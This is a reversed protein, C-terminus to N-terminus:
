NGYKEKIKKLKRKRIEKINDFYYDFIRFKSFNYGDNEKEMIDKFYHYYYFRYGLDGISLDTYVYCSETNDENV